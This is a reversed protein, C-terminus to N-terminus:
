VHGLRRLALELQAADKAAASAALSLTLALLLTRRMPRSSLRPTAFGCLRLTEFPLSATVDKRSQLASAVGGSEFERANSLPPAAEARLLTNRRQSKTGKRSQSEGNLAQSM